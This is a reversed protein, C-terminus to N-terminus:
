REKQKALVDRAQTVAAYPILTKRYERGGITEPTSLHTAEYVFETFDKHLTELEARLRAIEAAGLTLQDRIAVHHWHTLDEKADAAMKDQASAFAKMSLELPGEM